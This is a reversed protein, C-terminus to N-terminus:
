GNWGELQIWEHYGCSTSYGMCGLSPNVVGDKDITHNKHLSLSHGKDDVVVASIEDNEGHTLRSWTLNERSNDVDFRFVVRIM